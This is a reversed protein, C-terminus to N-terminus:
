RWSLTGPIKESKLIQESALSLTPHSFLPFSGRSNMGQLVAVNTGSNATSSRGKSLVAARTGANTTFCRGMPPVSMIIIIIIIIIIIYQIKLM